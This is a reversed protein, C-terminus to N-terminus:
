GGTNPLQLGAEFWSDPVPAQFTMPVDTIPHHVTLSRAHLAIGPLLDRPSGYLRDGVIPLGRAWAQVRLQHMRGTEPRLELWAFEEPCNPKELRKVWTLARQSRPTEPRCIQVRGLGTDERCIWDEWRMECDDLKGSVVAWYVKVVRRVEFQRSFRRASLPSKAWLVVGSVPRDLRHVTGVFACEGATRSLYARVETELTSGANPPAQTSLGPAKNVVVCHEDEYLIWM